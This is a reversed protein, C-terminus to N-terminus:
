ARKISFAGDRDQRAQPQVISLTEGHTRNACPATSVIRLYWSSGALVVIKKFAMTRVTQLKGWYGNIALLATVAVLCHIQYRNLNEGRCRVEVFKGSSM